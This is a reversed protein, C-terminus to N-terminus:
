ALSFGDDGSNKVWGKLAEEKAIGKAARRAALMPSGKLSKYTDSNKLVNRLELASGPMFSRNTGVCTGDDGNADAGARVVLIDAVDAALSWMKRRSTFSAGRPDFAKRGQLVGGLTGEELGSYTWAVALNSAAIKPAAAIAAAAAAARSTVSRRSYHFEAGTPSSSPVTLVEFSHFRYGGMMTINTGVPGDKAHSLSSQLVPAMRGSMTSDTSFARACGTASFQSEPMVVTALYVHEPNVLLSTVSSLLSTCQKLSLKDSCSKSLTPPADGRAPKRRVVGLQSFFGRGLLTTSDSGNDELEAHSPAVAAAPSTSSSAVSMEWPSADEQAEMTLEMSADGCPAESCYMHLTMDKRWTFTQGHWRSPSTVNSSSEQQRHLFLSSYDDEAALKRCEDLVFRNFARIALVEAHWDHIVNGQAQPLKSSPLCKM